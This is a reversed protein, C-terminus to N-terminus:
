KKVEIYCDRLAPALGEQRLVCISYMYCGRCTTKEIPKTEKKEM